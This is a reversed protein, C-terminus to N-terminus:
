GPGGDEGLTSGRDPEGELRRRTRPVQSVVDRDDAGEEVVTVQGLLLVPDLAEEEVEDQDPHQVRM